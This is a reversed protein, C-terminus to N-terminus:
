FIFNKIKVPGSLSIFRPSTIQIKVVVKITLYQNFLYDKKLLFASM